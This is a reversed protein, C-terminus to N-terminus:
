EALKKLVLNDPKAIKIEPGNMVILGKDFHITFITITSGENNMCMIHRNDPFLTIFKPYEGSVPLSSLM